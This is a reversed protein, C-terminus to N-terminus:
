GGRKRELLATCDYQSCMQPLGWFVVSVWVLLVLGFTAMPIHADPMFRPAAWRTARLLPDTLISLVQYFINDMRRRGALVWLLGYHFPVEAWFHSRNELFQSSLSSYTFPSRRYRVVTGVFFLALAAYPLAVFLLADLPTTPNM